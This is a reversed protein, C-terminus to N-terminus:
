INDPLFTITHEAIIILNQQKEVIYEGISLYLVRVSDLFSVWKGGVLDVYYDCACDATVRGELGM